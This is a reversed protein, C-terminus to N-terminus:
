KQPTHELTITFVGAFKNTPSKADFVGNLPKPDLNWFTEVFTWGTGMPDGGASKAEHDSFGGTWATMSFPITETLDEIHITDSNAAYPSVTISAKKDCIDMKISAEGPFGGGDRTSSGKPGTYTYKIKGDGSGTLRGMEAFNFNVNFDTTLEWETDMTHWTYNGKMKFTMAKEVRSIIDEPISYGALEAEKQLKLIEVPATYDHQETIKKILEDFATKLLAAFQKDLKATSTNNTTIALAFKVQSLIKGIVVLYQTKKGYDEMLKTLKSTIREILKDRLPAIRPDSVGDPFIPEGKQDTSWHGTAQGQAKAVQDLHRMLTYEPEIFQEIYQNITASDEKKGDNDKCGSLDISPPPAPYTIPTRLLADAEAIIAELTDNLGKMYNGWDPDKSTKEAAIDDSWFSSFHFITASNQAQDRAPLALEANSGDQKGTFFLFVAEKGAGNVTITAPNSLVTGDPGLLVGGILNGPIDKSTINNLATMTITQDYDLTGPPFTLTWTLGSADTIKLIQDKNIDVAYDLSATHNHDVDFTVSGVVLPKPMAPQYTSSDVTKIGGSCSSSFVLIFILIVFTSKKWFHMMMDAEWETFVKL